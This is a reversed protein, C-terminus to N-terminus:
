YKLNVYYHLYKTEIVQHYQRVQNVTRRVTDVPIAFGVGINYLRM